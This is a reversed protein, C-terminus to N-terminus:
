DLGRKAIRESILRLAVKGVPRGDGDMVEVVQHNINEGDLVADDLMDRAGAEAERMADELSDLDIGEEDRILKDGDRVHFFFLAMRPYTM